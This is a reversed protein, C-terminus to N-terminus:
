IKVRVYPSWKRKGTIVKSSSSVISETSVGCIEGLERATDAIALPFEYKDHSIKMWIYKPKRKRKM